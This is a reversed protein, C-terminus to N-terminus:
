FEGNETVMFCLNSKSPWLWWAQTWIKTIVHINQTKYVKRTDHSKTVFPIQNSDLKKQM